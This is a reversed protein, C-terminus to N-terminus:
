RTREYRAASVLLRAAGDQTELEGQPGVWITEGYMAFLPVWGARRLVTPSLSFVSNHRTAM